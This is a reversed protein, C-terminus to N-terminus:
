VKIELQAREGSSWTRNRVSVDGTNKLSTVHLMNLFRVLLRLHEKRQGRPPHRGLAQEVERWKPVGAQGEVKVGELEGGGGALASHGALPLGESQDGAKM